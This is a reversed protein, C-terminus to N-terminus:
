NKIVKDCVEKKNLYSFRTEITKIVPHKSDNISRFGLLIINRSKYADMRMVGKDKTTIFSCELENM